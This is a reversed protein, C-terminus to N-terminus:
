NRMESAFTIKSSSEENSDPEGYFLRKLLHQALGGQGILGLISGFILKLAEQLGGVDGLLDLLSYISRSSGKRETAAIVMIERLINDNEIPFKIKSEEVRYLTM